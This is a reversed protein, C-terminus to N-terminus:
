GVADGCPTKLAPIVFTVEVRPKRSKFRCVWLYCRTSSIALLSIDGGQSGRGGEGLGRGKPTHMSLAKLCVQRRFSCVLCKLCDM